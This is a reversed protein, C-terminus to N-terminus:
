KSMFLYHFTFLRVEIEARNKNEATAIAKLKDEHAKTM